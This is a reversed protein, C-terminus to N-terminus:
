PGVSIDNARFHCLVGLQVAPDDITEFRPQLARGPHRTGSTVNPQREPPSSSHIHWSGPERAALSAGQVPRHKTKPLPSCHGYTAEM